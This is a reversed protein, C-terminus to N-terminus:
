SNLLKEAEARHPAKKPARELYGRAAEQAGATDGTAKLARALWVFSEPKPRKEAVAARLEPLADAPRGAAVLLMARARTAAPGEGLAAALGEATEPPLKDVSQEALRALAAGEQRWRVQGDGLIAPSKESEGARQAFVLRLGSRDVRGPIRGGAIWWGHAPDLAEEAEELVDRADPVWFGDWGNPDAVRQLRALCEDVLEAHSNGTSPVRSILPRLAVLGAEGVLRILDAAADPALRGALWQGVQEAIAPAERCWRSLLMRRVVGTAATRVETRGDRLMRGLRDLALTEAPALMLILSPNTGPDLRSMWAVLQARQVDTLEGRLRVLVANVAVGALLRVSPSKEATATDILAPLDDWTGSSGRQRIAEARGAVDM